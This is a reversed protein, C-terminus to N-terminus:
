ATFSTKVQGGMAELTVTGSYTGLATSSGTNQASTTNELYVLLYYTYTTNATMAAGAHIDVDDSVDTTTAGKTIQTPAKKITTASSTSGTYVLYKWNTKTAATVAMDLYINASNIAVTSKATIIWLHCGTYGSNECKATLAKNVQTTTMNAATVGFDAPVLANSAATTGSFTHKATTLTFNSPSVNHTSGSISTGTATKSASFYAFTAGVIAILLTAVGVVAYFIGTGSRKNNEEM